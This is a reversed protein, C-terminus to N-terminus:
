SMDVWMPVLSLLHRDPFHWSPDDMDDHQQHRATFMAFLQLKAIGM